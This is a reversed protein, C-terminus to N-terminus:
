GCSVSLSKHRALYIDFPEPALVLGVFELADVIGPMALAVDGGHPYDLYAKNKTLKVTISVMFRDTPTSNAAELDFALM